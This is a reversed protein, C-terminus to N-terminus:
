VPYESGADDAYAPLGRSPGIDRIDVLFLQNTETEADGGLLLVWRGCPTVRPHGHSKQETGYTPWPGSVLDWEPVGASTLERLCYLVRGGDATGDTMWKDGHPVAAVHQSGLKPTAFEVRRHTKPCTVGGFSVGRGTIEYHLGNRTANYHCTNLGIETQTRLATFWGGDYDTMLLMHETPLHDYSFFLHRPGYAIVHKTYANIRVVLHHEGTDLDYRVIQGDSVPRRGHTMITEIQKADHTIYFFYRGCPSVCNQAHACRGPPISFLLRDEGSEVNVARYEPGNCYILESRAANFVPSENPYPFADTTTVRALERREGTSIDLAEWRTETIRDDRVDHSQYVLRRGDDSISPIFYYMAQNYRPGETVRYATRGTGPVSVMPFRSSVNEPSLPDSNPTGKTNM